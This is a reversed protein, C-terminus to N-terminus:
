PAAKQKVAFVSFFHKEHNEIQRIVITIVKGDRTGTIRWFQATAPAKIREAGVKVIHSIKTEEHTVTAAPDRLIDAVYPLLALRRRQDSKSRPLNGKWLLHRLGSRYFAIHASLAPCWINSLRGYAEEAGKRTEHHNQETILNEM